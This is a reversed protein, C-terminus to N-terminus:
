WIDEPHIPNDFVEKACFELYDFYFEKRDSDLVSKMRLYYTKDPDMYQRTILRRTQRNDQRATKGSNGLLCISNSGKMFGNNRMRKDIESNFDDDDTDEEWGTMGSSAEMTLDMPIGTVPLNDPDTGFYVQVIGRSPQALVSYRLEYISSRPVPPLKITVEYHGVCKMEDANLNFWDYKYANFYVLNSEDNLQINELYPYTNTRPIYVFQFRDESSEKKRMDNNMMEPFLTVGDFRIRSRLLNNRVEDNYSLPADIPYLCGNSINTLVAREDDRGVRCGKKDPDCGTEHGTGRRTNDCNAFRNLYVGNSERSEYIKLLRRKGLTTYYDYVPIGLNFPSNLNYGMENHHIVLKSNSLRVPLIHYTTWQYLLNEPNKYQNDCTFFDGEAWQHNELIWQQLKALLNPDDPDINQSRWFDDTEAFITFGYKRHEPAYATSGQTFGKGMMNNLDSIKGNLYKEEYVEDRVSKLTDMLGCAAIASAMVRFGEQHKYIIEGLYDAMTVDRPSIVKDMQHITGNTTRIDRNRANIPYLKNIYISDPEDPLYHVTLKHDNMNALPFEGGDLMPFQSTEYSADNDGSDIISNYAITKRISDLRASDTFADWSPRDILREDVLTKLYEDIANNTPAFVTYHGRAMLLQSLTTPSKSSVPVQNLIELYTGYVEPYSHLYSYITQDTFVYRMSTDIHETCSTLM